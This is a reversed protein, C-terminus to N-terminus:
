PPSANPHNGGCVALRVAWSPRQVRRLTELTGISYLIPAPATLAFRFTIGGSLRAGGPARQRKGNHGQGKGRLLSQLPPNELARSPLRFNTHPDGGLVFCFISTVVFARSATPPSVARLGSISGAIM